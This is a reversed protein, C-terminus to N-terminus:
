LNEQEKVSQLIGEVDNGMIDLGEAKIERSKGIGFLQCLGKIYEYGFDFNGLYGGATTIYVLEKANCLGVPIGQENYKFAIGCVSVNELYIKLLAPFQLDYYPAGIVIHDVKAFENALAFYPNNFDAKAALEDRERLHEATLPAMAIDQLKIEKIEFDIDTNEDKIKDLYMRCLRETRSEKRLCSNVFLVKM